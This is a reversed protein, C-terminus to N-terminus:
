NPEAVVASSNFTRVVYEGSTGRINKNSDRQLNELISEFPDKQIATFM